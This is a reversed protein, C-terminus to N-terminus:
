LGLRRSLDSRWVRNPDVRDRVSRFRGLDPYGASVAAPSVLADKALYHRGGATL